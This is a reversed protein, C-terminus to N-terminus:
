DGRQADEALVEMLTHMDSPVSAAWQMREGSVPHDLALKAAHLAQRKFGRLTDALQDSCGRPVKFRGGYLPDGLVPFGVHALHVRIQHTRGSELKVQILTHALYRKLVRYHTIAEKGRETVAMRTRQRAHRGIPAEVTGGSIMKGVVIAVYEREISRAALQRILKQRAIETKAVALLGSTEKDLRHVIGARPLTKLGPLYALLANLLTMDPNGAGPHVVLGPPKDVVLLAEDEHVIRLPIRQPPWDNEPPQPVHIEIRDGKGVRDRKRPLRGNLRVREEAIWQQLRSRTIDAFLVALAQDLRKGDLDPPIRASLSKKTMAHYEDDL